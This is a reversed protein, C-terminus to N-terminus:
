IEADLKIEVPKFDTGGGDYFRSFIEYFELRLVQIGVLLGEIGMVIANGIIYVIVTKVTVPADGHATGALQSVVLMFGAHSLVFGGVRLYSMTNSLFSIASEFLEIFNEIIFNGISLKEERKKGAILDSLPHKFFILLVPLVILCIVYPASFMPVGYMLQGAAGAVVAAYLLIGAAGNVAFLAEGKRGARFNLVMNFIMSILILIVGIFLAFLLVATAAQFVNEPHEPVGLGGFMKCVNHWIEERHYIPKIITEIGFVSGYICGGAMSFVGLRTMIPALGNKTLKTLLLGLLTVVLGQGVDGFMLGFLIMYTFAVYPTPDFTGYTPLGYMKVFMEFPRTLRNNKLRVPVDKRAKGKEVPIELVRLDESISKIVSELRKFESTPCFGSFSFKDNSIIVKKRLEFCDSKYKLKCMVANFEGRLEDTFYAMEQELRTMEKEEAEIRSALKKDADEPNDELYSPLVTREFCLSNMVSDAFDILSKPALYIGYVYDPTKEFPLFVFCKSVYYGLKKENEAPLRGIRMKVYKLGFLDKFSVDLGILHQLYADTQKHEELMQSVQERQASIEDYKASIEEFYREFDEGTEYPVYKFDCYEAKINLNVAMDRIKTYTALYPNQESLNRLVAGGTSIQFQRSDCCAMLAEDLFEASGEVSVLSMKEIAM